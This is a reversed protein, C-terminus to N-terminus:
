ILVLSRGSGVVVVCLVTLLGAETRIDLWPRTHSTLDSLKSGPETSHKIDWLFFNGSWDLRGMRRWGARRGTHSGAHGAAAAAWWRTEPEIGQAPPPHAAKGPRGPWKGGGAPHSRSGCLTHPVPRPVLVWCLVTLLVLEESGSHNCFWILQKHDQSSIPQKIWWTVPFM